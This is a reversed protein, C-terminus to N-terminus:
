VMLSRYSLSMWTWQSELHCPPALAEPLEGTHQQQLPEAPPHGPPWLTARPPSLTMSARSLRHPQMMWSLVRCQAWSATTSPTLFGLKIKIGSILSDRGLVEPEERYLLLTLPRVKQRRSGRCLGDWSRPRWSGGRYGSIGTKLQETSWLRPSM